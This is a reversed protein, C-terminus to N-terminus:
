KKRRKAQAAALALRARDCADASEVARDYTSPHNNEKIFALWAAEHKEHAVNLARRLAAVSPKKPTM